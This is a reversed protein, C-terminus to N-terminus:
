SPYREVAAGPSAGGIRVSALIAPLVSSCHPEIQFGQASINKAPNGCRHHRQRQGQGKAHGGTQTRNGPQVARYNDAEQSGYQAARRRLDGSRGPRCRNGHRDNDGVVGMIRGLDRRNDHQAAQQLDGETQESYSAEDDVGRVGHDRAEHRADADDDNQELDQRTQARRNLGLRAVGDM